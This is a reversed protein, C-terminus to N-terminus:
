KQINNLDRWYPKTENEVPEHYGCVGVCVYGDPASGQKKSLYEKRTSTDGHEEEWKKGVIMHYIKM